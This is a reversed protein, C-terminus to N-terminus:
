SCGCECTYKCGVCVSDCTSELVNLWMWKCVGVNVHIIAGLRVSECTSGCVNLCRWERVIVNAHIHADLVCLNVHLNACM